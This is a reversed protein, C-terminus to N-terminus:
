NIGSRLWQGLTSNATASSLKAAPQAKKQLCTSSSPFLTMANGGHQSRADLNHYNLSPEDPKNTKLWLARPCQCFLTYRSKSLRKM